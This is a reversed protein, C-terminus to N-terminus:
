LCKPIEREIRYAWENIQEMSCEGTYLPMGNADPETWIDNTIQGSEIAMDCIPTGPVIMVGRVFSYWNPKARKMFEITDQISQECEGPNGIMMLAYSIMGHERIMQLSREAKKLDLKKNLHQHIIESGSEVGVAVMFCGSERMAECLEDDLTDGRTTTQWAIKLDREIIMNCVDLCQKRQLPFADDNFAFLEINYKKNLYEMENVIDWASRLRVVSGWHEWANCFICRGICGRSAIIPAWRAQGLTVGNIVRDSILTAVCMKYWDFQTHHWAPGLYNDLNKNLRRSEHLGHEKSRIGTVWEISEGNSWSEILEAIAGEGEGIVCVDVPYHEMIEKHCSTAHIGGVVIKVNPNLAKFENIMRYAESRVFSLMSFGIIDIEGTEIDDLLEPEIEQRNLDRMVVEAGANECAAAIYLLGLPIDSLPVPFGETKIRILLIKM